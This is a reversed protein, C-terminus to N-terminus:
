GAWDKAAQRIASYIDGKRDDDLDSSRIIGEITNALETAKDIVEDVDALKGELKERQIRKLNADEIALDTRAQELTVGDGNSAGRDSKIAIYAKNSGVLFILTM